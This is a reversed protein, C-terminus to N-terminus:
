LTRDLNINFRILTLVHYKYHFPAENSVCVDACKFYIKPGIWMRHSLYCQTHTHHQKWLSECIFVMQCDMFMLMLHCEPKPWCATVTDDDSTLIDSFRWGETSTTLPRLLQKDLQNNKASWVGVGVRKRFFQSSTPSNLSSALGKSCSKLFAM